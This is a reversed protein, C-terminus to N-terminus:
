ACWLRALIYLPVPASGQDGQNNGSLLCLMIIVLMDFPLVVLLNDITTVAMSLGEIAALYFCKRWFMIEKIM